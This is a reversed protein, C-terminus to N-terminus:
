QHEVCTVMTVPLTGDFGSVWRGATASVPQVTVSPWSDVQRGNRDRVISPTGVSARVRIMAGNDGMPADQEGERVTYFVQRHTRWYDRRVRDLTWWPTMLAAGDDVWVGRVLTSRDSHGPWHPACKGDGFDRASHFAYVIGGALVIVVGVIALAFKM